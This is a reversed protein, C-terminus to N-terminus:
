KIIAIEIWVRGVQPLVANSIRTHNLGRVSIFERLTLKSNSTITKVNIQQTTKHETPQM